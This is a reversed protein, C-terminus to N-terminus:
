SCSLLRPHEAAGHWISAPLGLSAHPRHCAQVAHITSVLEARRRASKTMLHTLGEHEFYEQVCRAALKNRDLLRSSAIRDDSSSPGAEDDDDEIEDEEAPGAELLVDDWSAPPGANGVSLVHYREGFLEAGEDEMADEEDDEAAGEDEDEAEVEAEAAAAAQGAGVEPAAAEEMEESDSAGETEQGAGDEVEDGRRGGLEETGAPLEEEDEEDEEDEVVEVVEVEEGGAAPAEEEGFAAEEMAAEFTAQGEESAEGEAAAEPTAGGMRLKRAEESSALDAM